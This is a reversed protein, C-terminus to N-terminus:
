RRHERRELWGLAEEWSAIGDCTRLFKLALHLEYDRGQSFQFRDNAERRKRAKAGQTLQDRGRGIKRAESIM